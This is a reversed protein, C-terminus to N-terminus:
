TKQRTDELRTDKALRRDRRSCYLLWGMYATIGISAALGGVSIWTVKRCVEHIWLPLYIAGNGLALWEAWTREYWLGVAESGNLLAYAFCPSVVLWTYDPTVHAAHEMVWQSIGGEPDLHLLHLVARATAPVDGRMVSLLWLGTSLVSLAKFAKFMAIAKLSKRSTTSFM